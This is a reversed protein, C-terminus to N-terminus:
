RKLVVKEGLNIIKVSETILCTSTQKQVSLVTLRGIGQRPFGSGIERYIIFNDSPQVGQAAGVDLYVVDGFSLGTRGIREGIIHGILQNGVKLGYSRSNGVLPKQLPVSLESVPMIPDGIQIYNYSKVIEASSIGPELTKVKIRGLIDIQTGMIESTVPHFIEKRPRFVVFMDGERINHSTGKNIYIIDGFVLGILGDESQIVHTTDGIDAKTIQAFGESQLEQLSYPVIYGSSEIFNVNPVVPFPVRRTAVEEPAPAPLGYWPRAIAKDSRRRGGSAAGENGPFLGLIDGPYILNPNVIHQNQQHIERWRYPSDLQTGAIDWLTDGYQVVYSSSQAEVSLDFSITWVFCLGFLFLLFASRKM